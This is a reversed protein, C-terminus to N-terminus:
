HKMTVLDSKREKVATDGRSMFEQLGSLPNPLHHSLGEPCCLKSEAEEGTCCSEDGASKHAKPIGGLKSLTKTKELLILYKTVRTRKWLMMGNSPYDLSCGRKLTGSLATNTKLQSQKQWFPHM